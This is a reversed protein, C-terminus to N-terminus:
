PIITSVGWAYDVYRGYASDYVYGFSILCQAVVLLVGMVLVAIRAVQLRASRKHLWNLTAALFFGALIFPGPMFMIFYHLRLVIDHHTLYLLPIIQWILLLLLGCRFPSQRLAIWWHGLGAIFSRRTAVSAKDSRERIVLVLALCAGGLLLLSMVSKILSFALAYPGFLSLGSTIPEPLPGLLQQYFYFAQGDILAVKSTTHLITNIDLFNSQFLWYIYSSYIFLLGALGLAIDYWRFTSRPALALAALLPVILIITSAHFQILLGFLVLSPFLWLVRRAVVGRFLFWFFLPVFLLLMNQNWMFRAYFVPVFATAYLLAAWTGALRGYYRRTFIYTLLVAVIALLATLVAGGVPDPSFTAPVMLAYIIAPPNFIGISAVNSTAVLHGHSVANHAMAFIDAQDGDFETTNICYLRLFAALLLIPYIEWSSLLKRLPLQFSTPLKASVEKQTDHEM